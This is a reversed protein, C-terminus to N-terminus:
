TIFSCSLQLKISFCVKVSIKKQLNQLIQLFVKKVSCRWVATDFSYYYVPKTKVCYINSLMILDPIKGLLKVLTQKKFFTLTKSHKLTCTPIKLHQLSQLPNSTSGQTKPPKKVEPLCVFSLISAFKYVLKNKHLNLM